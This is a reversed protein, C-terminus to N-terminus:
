NAKRYIAAVGAGGLGLNHQLAATAGSVQRKDAEGRLQWTLEACQALGTAGLPHGKTLLGGSPNVVWQGGYTTAGSMLLDGGKGEPCLGLAEYLLVEAPAFCDHLEVVQVDEPGLGSEEYVQRAVRRNMHWGIIGRDSGDFTDPTDTTMAMASIEVARDRLGHQDVFRESAVIASAGGDSTPCCMMRTLPDSAMPSAMVEEATRATQFQSRPNNVAHGYNKVSVAAWTEVTTGYKEMHEKAANAFMQPAIPTDVRGRKTWMAKIQKRLPSPRGQFVQPISGASMKEFGVAMVCDAQGYKVAERALFLGSVGSACNNNVNVIPIGTMGLEYLARNGYCSDGHVYSGFAREVLDYAIGADDLAAQGAERGMDPYDWDRAGPKEFKTMGVGIVFTRQTM